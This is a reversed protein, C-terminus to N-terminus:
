SWKEAMLFACLNDTGELAYKMDQSFLSWLMAASVQGVNLEQPFRCVCVFKSSFLTFAHM